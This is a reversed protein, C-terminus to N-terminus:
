NNLKLIRKFMYKMKGEYKPPLEFLKNYSPPSPEPSPPPSPIRVPPPNPPPSHNPRPYPPQRYGMKNYNFFYNLQSSLLPLSPPSPSPSYPM